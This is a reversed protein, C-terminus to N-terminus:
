QKVDIDLVLSLGKYMYLGKLSKGTDRLSSKIELVSDQRQGVTKRSHQRQAKLLPTGNSGGKSRMEIMRSKMGKKSRQSYCKDKV